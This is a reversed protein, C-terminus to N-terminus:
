HELGLERLLEAARRNRMLQRLPKVPWLSKWAMLCAGRWTPRYIGYKPDEYYYGTELFTDTDARMSRRLFEAPDDISPAVRAADAGFRAVSAQHIELLRQPNKIRPFSQSGERLRLLPVVVLHSSNSTTLRTKDNFETTFALLTVTKRVHASVATATVVQAIQREKVNAFLTVFTTAGPVVNSVRLDGALRFGLAEMPRDVRRVANVFENPTEDILSNILEVQPDPSYWHGLKLIVPGTVPLLLVLAALATWVGIAGSDIFRFLTICTFFSFIALIVVIIGSRQRPPPPHRKAEVSM